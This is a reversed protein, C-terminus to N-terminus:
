QKVYKTLLSRLECLEENTLKPKPIIFATLGSVFIFIREKTEDAKLVADWGYIGTRDSEVDKIGDEDFTMENFGFFSSNEPQSYIRESRKLASRRLLGPMFVGWFIAFAIAVVVSASLVRENAVYILLALGSLLIPVGWRNKRIRINVPATDYVHRQFAMIDDMNVEFRITM